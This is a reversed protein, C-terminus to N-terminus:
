SSTPMGETPAEVLRFLGDSAVPEDHRAADSSPSHFVPDKRFKEGASYLLTAAKDAHITVSEPEFTHHIIKWMSVATKDSHWLGVLNTRVNVFSVGEM